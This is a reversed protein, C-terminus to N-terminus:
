KQADTPVTYKHSRCSRSVKIIGNQPIKPIEKETTDVTAYFAQAHVGSDTRSCGTISCNCGFLKASACNLEGQVTRRSPQVQYGCFGSGDYRLKLLLKVTM